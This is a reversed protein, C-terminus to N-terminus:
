KLGELIRYALEVRQANPYRKNSLLVIGVQRSPIFAAYAGFGNTAGTKHVWSSKVAATPPSILTAASGKVFDSDTMATLASLPLPYDLMEWGLGQYMQGAQAYRQQARAIAAKLVPSSVKEPQLNVQVWSAVDRV